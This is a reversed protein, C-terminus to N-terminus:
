RLQLWAVTKELALELALPTVDPFVERLLRPDSTSHSVDGIRPASFSTSASVGLVDEMSRMLSNLSLGTGFALNVPHDLSLQRTLASELVDVVSDVYTFDRSQSGDGNIIVPEDHMMAWLWKPIVAAYDHEPDQFPGFVNFFRLVLVPLGYSAQYAFMYAEAALKSAAYPSLPQTWTREVKPTMPNSGYVSSSSSMVIHTGTLRAAELVNMTGTVNVRHTSMPDAISRPVSGRAALHAVADVEAVAEKVSEADTVSCRRIAVELGSLNSEKGTSFDDLVVIQHDRELLRRVLNTGIFGAGGTVLVKM